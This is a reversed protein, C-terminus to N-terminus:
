LGLDQSFHAALFAFKDKEPMADSISKLLLQDSRIVELKSYDLSYSREWDKNYETFSDSISKEGGDDERTFELPINIFKQGNKCITLKDVRHTSSFGGDVLSNATLGVVRFLNKGIVSPSGTVLQMPMHYTEPPNSSDTIGCYTGIKYISVSVSYSAPRKGQAVYDIFPNKSVKDYVSTFAEGCVLSILKDFQDYAADYTSFLGESKFGYNAFVQDMDSQVISREKCAASYTQWWSSLRDVLTAMETNPLHLYSICDDDESYEDTKYGLTKLFPRIFAEEDEQLGRDKGLAALLSLGAVKPSLPNAPLLTECIHKMVLFNLTMIQERAPTTGIKNNQM